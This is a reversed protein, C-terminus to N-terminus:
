EASVNILAQAPKRQPSGTGNRGEEKNKFLRSRRRWPSFEEVVRFDASGRAEGRAERRAEEEREACDNGGQGDASSGQTQTRDSGLSCFQPKLRRCGTHKPNEKKGKGGGDSVSKSAPPGTMAVLVNGHLALMRIKAKM